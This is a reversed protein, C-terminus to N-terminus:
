RVITKFKSVGQQSSVQVLYIGRSYMNLDIIAHDTNLSKLEKLLQGSTNYIRVQDILSNPSEVNLVNDRAIYHTFGEIIQDSVTLIEDRSFFLEVDKPDEDCDGTINTEFVVTFESDDSAIYNGGVSPGFFIGMTCQLGTSNDIEGISGFTVNCDTGFVLAFTSPPQGVGADPLYVADFSRYPIPLNVGPQNQSPDTIESFLTVLTPQGDLNFTSFDLVDPTIDLIYYEGIFSDFDSLLECQANSFHTSFLVIILLLYNKNM